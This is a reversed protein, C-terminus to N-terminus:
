QNDSRITVKFWFGHTKEVLPTYYLVTGTYEAGNISWEVRTNQPLIPDNATLYLYHMSKANLQYQNNINQTDKNRYKGMVRKVGDLLITKQKEIGTGVKVEKFEYATVLQKKFTM